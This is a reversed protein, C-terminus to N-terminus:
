FMNFIMFSHLRGVPYLGEHEDSATQVLDMVTSRGREDQTTTITDKPKNLLLYVFRRPSIIRGNTIVEYLM